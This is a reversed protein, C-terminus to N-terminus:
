TRDRFHPEPSDAIYPLLQDSPLFNEARLPFAAKEATVMTATMPKPASATSMPSTRTARVWSWVDRSAAASEPAVSSLPVTWPMSSASARTSSYPSYLSTSRWPTSISGVFTSIPVHSSLAPDNETHAGPWSGNGTLATRTECVIGAIEATSDCTANPTSVSWTSAVEIAVRGWGSPGASVLLQKRGIATGSQLRLPRPFAFGLGNLNVNEGEGVSVTPHPSTVPLGFALSTRSCSRPWHSCPSIELPSVTYVFSPLRVDASWVMESM